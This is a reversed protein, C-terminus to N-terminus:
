PLTYVYTPLEAQLVFDPDFHNVRLVEHGM